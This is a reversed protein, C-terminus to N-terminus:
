FSLIRSDYPLYPLFIPLLDPTSLLTNIKSESLAACICLQKKKFSNGSSQVNFFKHRQLTNGFSLMPYTSCICTASLIASIIFWVQFVYDIPHKGMYM